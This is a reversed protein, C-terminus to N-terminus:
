LIIIGIGNRLAQKFDRKIKSQMFFGEVIREKVKSAESHRLLKFNRNFPQTAFHTFPFLYFLTVIQVFKKM